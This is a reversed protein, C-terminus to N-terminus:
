IAMVHSYILQRHRLYAVHYENHDPPQFIIALSTEDNDRLILCSTIDGRRMCLFQTAGIYAFARVCACVCACM